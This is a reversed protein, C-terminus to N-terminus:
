VKVWGLGIELGFYYSNNKIYISFYGGGCVSFFLFFISLFFYFFFLDPNGLQSKPPFLEKGPEVISFFTEVYFSKKEELDKM